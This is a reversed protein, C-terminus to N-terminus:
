GQAGSTCSYFTPTQSQAVGQYGSISGLRAHVFSAVGYPSLGSAVRGSVRPWVALSRSSGMRGADEAISPGLTPPSMMLTTPIHRTSPDIVEMGPSSSISWGGPSFLVRPVEFPLQINVSHPSVRGMWPSPGTEWGGPRNAVSRRGAAGCVHSQRRVNQWCYTEACEAPLIDSM